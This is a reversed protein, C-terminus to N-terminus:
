CLLFKVNILKVSLGLLCFWVFLREITLKCCVDSIHVRMLYTINDVFHLIRSHHLVRSVSNIFLIFCWYLCYSKVASLKVWQYLCTCYMGTQLILILDCFYHNELNRLFMSLHNM